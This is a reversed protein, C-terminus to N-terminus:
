TSKPEFRPVALFSSHSRPHTVTRLMEPHHSCRCPLPLALRCKDLSPGQCILRSPGRRAEGIGFRGESEHPGGRGPFSGLGRRGKWILDMGVRAGTFRGAELSVRGEVGVKLRNQDKERGHGGGEENVHIIGAYGGRVAVPWWRVEPFGWWWWWGGHKKRQDTM